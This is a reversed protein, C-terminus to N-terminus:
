PFKVKASLLVRMWLVITNLQQITIDQSVDFFSLIRHSVSMSEAQLKVCNLIVNASLKSHISVQQIITKTVM